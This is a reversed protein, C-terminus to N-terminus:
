LTAEYTCSYQITMTAHEQDGEGLWELDDIGVYNIRKLLANSLKRDTAIAAQVEEFITDLQDDIDTSKAARVEIRLEADITKKNGMSDSESDAEESGVYILLAPLKSAEVPYVRSPFVNTTTTTLGTLLTTVRDRITKRKHTM